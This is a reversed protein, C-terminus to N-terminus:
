NSCITHCCTYQHIAFNICQSAAVTALLLLCSVARVVPLLRRCLLSLLLVAPIRV